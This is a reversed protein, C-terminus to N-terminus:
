CCRSGGRFDQGVHEDPDERVVRREVIPDAGIGIERPPMGCCGTKQGYQDLLPQLAGAKHVADRHKVSDGAINGLAWVAQEQVDATYGSDLQIMKLLTPVGGFAVVADQNDPNDRALMALAHLANRQARPARAELLAIIARLGGM